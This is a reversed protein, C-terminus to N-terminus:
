RLNLAKFQKKWPKLIEYLGIIHKSLIHGRAGEERIGGMDVRMM